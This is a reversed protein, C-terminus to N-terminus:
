FNDLNTILTSILTMRIKQYTKHLKFLLDFM